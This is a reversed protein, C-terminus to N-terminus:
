KGDNGRQHFRNRVESVSVGLVRVTWRPRCRQARVPFDDRNGHHLALFDVLVKATIDESTQM